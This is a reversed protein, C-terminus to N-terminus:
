AVRAKLRANSVHENETGAGSEFGFGGEDGAAKMRSVDACRFAFFFFIAIVSDPCM